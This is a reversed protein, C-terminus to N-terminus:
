IKINIISRFYEIPNMLRQFVENFEKEKLDGADNDGLIPVVFVEDFDSMLQMSVQKMVNISDPDYLLIVTKVSKKQKLLLRQNNSFSHGFTFVTSIGDIDKTLNDINLKDTLGEVVIVVDTEDTVDDYGGLINQFEVNTSNWFRSELKALGKKAEALNNDHWEKSNTSRGLLAVLNGNHFIQFLLKGKLHKYMVSNVVGVGFQEIQEKTIGRSRLYENDEIRKFGIPLEITEPVLVEEESGKYNDNFMLGNFEIESERKYEQSHSNHILHEKGIQKLFQFISTSTSCSWCNTLGGNDIFKIGLKGNRKGCNPCELDESKYFGSSTMTLDLEQIIQGKDIEM